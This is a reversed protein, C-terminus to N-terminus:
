APPLPRVVLIGDSVREVRVRAGWALPPTFPPLRAPWDQGDLQVTLGAESREAVIGEQGVLEAFPGTPPALPGLGEHFGRGKAGYLVALIALPTAFLLLMMGIAASQVLYGLGFSGIVSAGVLIWYRHFM